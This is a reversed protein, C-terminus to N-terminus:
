SFCYKERTMLPSDALLSSIASSVINTKQTWIFDVQAFLLLVSESKFPSRLTTSSVEDGFTLIYDYLLVVVFSVVFTFKFQINLESHFRM